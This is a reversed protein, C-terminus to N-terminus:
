LKDSIKEGVVEVYKLNNDLILATARDVDEPTTVRCNNYLSREHAALEKIGWLVDIEPNIKRAADIIGYLSPSRVHGARVLSGNSEVCCYAELAKKAADMAGYVDFPGVFCDTFATYGVFHEPNFHENLAILPDLSVKKANAIQDPTARSAPFGVDGFATSYLITAIESTPIIGDDHLKKVYDDIDQVFTQSIVNSAKFGGNMQTPIFPVAKDVLIINYDRMFHRMASYGISGAGGVILMTKDKIRFENEISKARRDNAFPMLGKALLLSEPMYEIAMETNLLLKGNHWTETRFTGTYSLRGLEPMQVDGVRFDLNGTIPEGSHFAVSISKYVPTFGEQLLENVRRVASNDKVVDPDRVVDFNFNSTRALPGHMITELGSSTIPNPYTKVAICKKIPKPKSSNLEFTVKRRLTISDDDEKTRASVGIFHPMQFDKATITEPDKEHKIDGLMMMAPAVARSIGKKQLDKTAHPLNHDGSDRVFDNNQKKTYNFDM